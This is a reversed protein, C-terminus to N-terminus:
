FSCRCIEMIESAAKRHRQLMLKLSQSETLWQFITCRLEM